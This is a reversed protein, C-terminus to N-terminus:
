AQRSRRYLALTIFFIAGAFAGYALMSLDNAAKEPPPGTLRIGDVRPEVHFSTGAFDGLGEFRAHSFDALSRFQAHRFTADKIFHVYPFFAEREFVADSLDAMGGFRSGSFGTGLAFSAHAFDAGQGFEVELLEGLGNFRAHRFIAPGLFRARHFRAHPGFATNEFRAPQVFLGRLLFAERRFSAGSFDLPGDFASWSLDMRQEFRTGTFTVPGLFLLMGSALNSVVAGEVTSETIAIEGSVLRVESLKQAKVTEQIASSAQALRSAPVPPLRDFAVTGTVVVGHLAVSKGAQLAALVAEATVPKAAREDQTCGPGFRVSFVPSDAPSLATECAASGWAPTVM